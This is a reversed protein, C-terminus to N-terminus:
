EKKNKFTKNIFDEAGKVVDEYTDKLKTITTNFVGKASNFLSGISYQRFRSMSLNSSQLQTGDVDTGFWTVYFKPDCEFANTSNKIDCIPDLCNKEKFIENQVKLSTVSYELCGGFGCSWCDNDWVVEKIVGKDLKIVVNFMTFLENKTAKSLYRSAYDVTANGFQFAFGQKQLSDKEVLIYAGTITLVEYNDVTVNFAIRYERPLIHVCVIVHDGIKIKEFKKDCFLSSASNDYTDKNNTNDNTTTDTTTTEKIVADTATCNIYIFSICYIVLRILKM